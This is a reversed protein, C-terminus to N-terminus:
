LYPEEYQKGQKYRQAANELSCMLFTLMLGCLLEELTGACGARSYVRGCCHSGVEGDDILKYSVKYGWALVDCSLNEM